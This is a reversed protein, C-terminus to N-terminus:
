ITTQFQQPKILVVTLLLLGLATKNTKTKMKERPSRQM